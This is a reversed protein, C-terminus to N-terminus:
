DMCWEILSIPILGPELFEKMFQRFEFKPGLAAARRAILEELQVSGMLYGAGYGPQRMYLDMEEWILYTNQNYWGYPVAKMAFTMAQALTYEGSHMRLDALARIARFIRLMFTLERSRPKHDLMGLDMLIEEMGTALAEARTGSVYFPDYARPFPRKNWQEERAADPSHGVMDHPLLPLPDRDLINEFFNRGTPRSWTGTGKVALYDPEPLIHNERIFRILWEQGALHVSDFQLRSEILPLEPLNRNKFEELKLLALTRELERQTLTICQEWTYPSLYVNKLLWNYNDIGIGSSGKLNPLKEELWKRFEVIAALAKSAPEILDSHSLALEPIWRNFQQEEWYKRKIGLVALDPTMDVLNKRAAAMIGPLAELRKRFEPLRNEAIPLQPLYVAGEMTPNFWGITSYFAPDRSWRKMITHNFELGHMHAGLLRYDIQRDKTWGSTDLRNLETQLIKLSDFQASMADASYDPIGAVTKPNRLNDFDKFLAVLDSYSSPRDKQGPSNCGSLLFITIVVHLWHGSFNPRYM